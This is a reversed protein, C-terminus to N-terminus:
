NAGAMSVGIPAKRQHPRSGLRDVLNPSGFIMMETLSLPSSDIIRAADRRLALLGGPSFFGSACALAYSLDVAVQIGLPAWTPYSMALATLGMWLLFSAVASTLLRGLAEQAAGANGSVRAPRARFV